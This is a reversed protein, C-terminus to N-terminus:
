KKESFYTLLSMGTAYVAGLATLLLNLKTIGHVGIDTMAVTIIIGTGVFNMVRKSSLSVGKDIATNVFETLPATDNSAVAGEAAITDKKAKKDKILSVASNLIGPVMGLLVGVIPNKNESM